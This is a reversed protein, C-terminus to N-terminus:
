DCRSWGCNRCTQCGSETEVRAGCEECRGPEQMLAMRKPLLYKVAVDEAVMDYEGKRKDLWDALLLVKVM